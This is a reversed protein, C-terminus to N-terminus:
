VWEALGYSLKFEFLGVRVEGKVREVFARRRGVEGVEIGWREGTGEVVRVSEELDELDAELLSM